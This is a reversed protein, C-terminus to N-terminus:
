LQLNTHKEQWRRYSGFAILWGLAIAMLTDTPWHAGAMVRSVAMVGAFLIVCLGLARALRRYKLFELAYCYAMLSIANATHGSPFSGRGWGHFSRNQLGYWTSSLTQEITLEHPRPRAIVGKFLHVVLATLISSVLIYGLVSRARLLGKPAAPVFSLTWAFLVFIQLFITVDGAGFADGEFLSQDMFRVMSPFSHSQLWLSGRSDWSDVLTLLVIVALAMCIYLFLATRGKSLSKSHGQM